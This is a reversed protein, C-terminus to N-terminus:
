KGLHIKMDVTLGPRLLWHGSRQDKRNEVEAWVLFRPGAEVLPSVFVIKNSEKEFSEVRDHALKVEVSVRKGDVDSPAWETADLYGEIRLRDMRVIRLVPDGPRVWEGVHRYQEVVIGEVPSEIQRRHLDLRAGEKEAIRVNVSDDAIELEHQSQEIQLTSQRHALLMRRLEAQPVTGAVQRNAEKAQLVEAEAVAAAAKAYRVSIDNGAERRAVDLKYDAVEYMQLTMRDDVQGLVEGKSVKRGEHVERVVDAYERRPRNYVTNIEFKPEDHEDFVRAKGTLVGGEQAAVDLDEILTVLCGPVIVSSSSDAQQRSGAAEGQQPGTLLLATSLAILAIQM